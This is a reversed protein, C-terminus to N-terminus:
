VRPTQKQYQEEAINPSFRPDQFIEFIHTKVMNCIDKHTLFPDFDMEENPFNTIDVDKYKRVYAMSVQYPNTQSYINITKVGGTDKTVFKPESNIPSGFPDNKAEYETYDRLPSIPFWRKKGTGLPYEFEGSLEVCIAFDTFLSTNIINGSVLPISSPQVRLPLLARRTWEDKEYNPLQKEFFMGLVANIYNSMETYNIDPTGYQDIEINIYNYAEIATM